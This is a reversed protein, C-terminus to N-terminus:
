GTEIFLRRDRRRLLGGRQCCASRTRDLRRAIPLWDRKGPPRTFLEGVIVADEAETWRRKQPGDMRHGRCRRLYHMNCLGAHGILRDCNRWTCPQKQAPRVYHVGCLGRAWVPRGCGEATCRNPSRYHTHCLGRAAHPRDCGAIDCRKPSQYHIACWGRAQHRRDCGDVICGRKSM